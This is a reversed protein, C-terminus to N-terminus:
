ATCAAKLGVKDAGSSAAGIDLILSAAVGPTPDLLPSEPEAKPFAAPKPPSPAIPATEPNPSLTPSPPKPPSLLPPPSPPPPAEPAALPSLPPAVEPSPRALPPYIIFYSCPPEMCCCALPKAASPRPSSEISTCM